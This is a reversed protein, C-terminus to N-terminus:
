LRRNTDDELDSDSGEVDVDKRRVRDKVTEERERVGKKLRVEEVVRAEKKVVPIEATTRMEMEEDQSTAFDDETAPRNTPAREVEVREDRLRITEEVPKEIIRSRVRVRGTEVERKSVDIDEEVVPISRTTDDATRKDADLFASREDVDASASRKNVGATATDDVDIAGADDLVRSALMAEESSTARVYVLFGRKAAATYRTSEEDNDFLNKFFREIRDGFNDDDDDRRVSSDERVISGDSTDVNADSFGNRRLDEVANRAEDRERFIGIVTQAM